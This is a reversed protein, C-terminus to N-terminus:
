LQGSCPPPGALRDGQDGPSGQGLEPVALGKKIRLFCDGAILPLLLTVHGMVLKGRGRM